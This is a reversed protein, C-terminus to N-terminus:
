KQGILLTGLILIHYLEVIFLRFLLLYSTKAFVICLKRLIPIGACNQLDFQIFQGILHVVAVHYSEYFFEGFFYVRTVVDIDLTAHVFFKV